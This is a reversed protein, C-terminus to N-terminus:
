WIIPRQEETRYLPDEPQIDFAKYFEPINFLTGNVRFKGWPHVDELTKRILAKDRIKGRWIQAYGIFFRQLDTFGGIVPPIEKGELSMKYAELAVTLGGFDAINEGLTLEGSIHLTDIVVFENFQDILLQTRKKFEVEDEETWWDVMNGNKDFHRGQDDFGHTMEHGIVAGISGYNIADEANPNFFPPQLIGAPFTIDNRIPHYGANVTQPSMIWKEKDVPKGYKEFDKYHNFYAVRRINNIYSDRKIELKTFDEWKDPYGINVNMSELKELAALKTSDTMWELKEIRKRLSKKLNEVLKVMKTKSEPPFHKKVYLQGLLEGISGNVSQTVRKWRIQIEKSGSLFESYFKYDQNVFDANLFEASRNILNWRLYIKWSDLSVKNMLVSIEEFFRPSMVIVEEFDVNSINAFYRRWNFNPSLKKLQKMSYKNYLSQINRMELRTKSKQALRIEIDMVTSAYNMAIERNIGMLEFMRSIHKIYEARIEKSRDDNKTYYNRDPLGLGAQVLYFKYITSNMFDQEIGGGFIPDLGYIHFRAILDQLDQKTKLNDIRDFESQLPKLGDSEIKVTDMGTYYFDSIKQTTSGYKADSIKSVEELINHINADCEERLINFNGYSTKDDPITTKDLWGGNAFRFFDDGPKVTIDMNEKSIASEFKDSCSVFLTLVALTFYFISNKKLIGRM